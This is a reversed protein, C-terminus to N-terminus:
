GQAIAPLGVTAQDYAVFALNYSHVFLRLCVEHM